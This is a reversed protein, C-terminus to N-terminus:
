ETTANKVRTIMSILINYIMQNNSDNLHHLYIGNQHNSFIAGVVMAQLDEEIMTYICDKRSLILHGFSEYFVLFLFVSM